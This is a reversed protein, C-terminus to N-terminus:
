VFNLKILSSVSSVVLLCKIYRVGQGTGRKRINESKYYVKENM